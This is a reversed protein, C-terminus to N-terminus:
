RHEAITCREVPRAARAIVQPPSPCGVAMVDHLVSTSTVPKSKAAKGYETEVVKTELQMATAMASLVSVELEEPM